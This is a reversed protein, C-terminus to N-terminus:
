YVHLGREDLVTQVKTFYNRCTGSSSSDCVTESTGGSLLGLVTTGNLAPGGSDGGLVCVNSGFMGYLVKGEVSVTM